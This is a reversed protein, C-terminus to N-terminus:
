VRFGLDELHVEVDDRDPRQNHLRLGLYQRSPSTVQVAGLPDYGTTERERETSGQIAQLRNYTEGERYQKSLSTFQQREKRRERGREREGERERERERGAQGRKRQRAQETGRQIPV